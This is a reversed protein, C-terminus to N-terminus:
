PSICCSALSHTLERARDRVTSGHTVNFDYLKNPDYDKPIQRYQIGDKVLAAASSMYRVNLHATPAAAAVRRGLRSAGRLMM